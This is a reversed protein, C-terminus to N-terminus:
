YSIFYKKKKPTLLGILGGITTGGITMIFMQPLFDKNPKTDILSCATAAVIILGGVIAGNLAYNGQKVQLYDISTFPLSCYIKAGEADYDTFSISDSKIKVDTVERPSFRYQSVVANRYFSNPPLNPKIVQSYISGSILLSILFINTKM